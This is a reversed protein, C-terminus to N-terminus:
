PPLVPRRWVYTAMSLTLLLQSGAIALGILYPNDPRWALAALCGAVALAAAVLYFRLMVDTRRQLSLVVTYAGAVLNCAEVIVGFGVIASYAVYRDKTLLGVLMPAAAMAVALVGLSMLTARLVYRRLTAGNSQYLRPQELQQYISACAAMAAGGVNAVVGYVGSAFAVGALPYAVRYAQLQAANCVAAGAIPAAVRLVTHAPDLAGAEHSMPLVRRAQAAIVVLEALLAIVTSVMLGRASAGALAVVGLFAVLRGVSELLLMTSVFVTNGRNNLLNRLTSCLYLLAAAAYLVPLDGVQLKGLWCLPAGLAACACLGCALVRSVLRLLGPLPISDRRALRAQMYFDVPVFVLANLAYSLTSLYFFRGVEAISLEGTYSKVLALGAAISLLRIAVVVM